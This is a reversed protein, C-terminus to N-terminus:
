TTVQVLCLTSYSAVVCCEQRSRSASGFLSSILLSNLSGILPNRYGDLKFRTRRGEHRSVPASWSYQLHWAKRLTLARIPVVGTNGKAYPGWELRLIRATSGGCRPNIICLIQCLAGVVLADGFLLLPFWLDRQSRTVGSSAITSCGIWGASYSIFYAFPM